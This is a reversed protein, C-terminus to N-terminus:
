RSNLRAVASSRVLLDNREQSVFGLSLAYDMDIGGIIGFYEEELRQYESSVAQLKSLNEKKAVIEGVMLNVFYGYFVAMILIGGLLAGFTKGRNTKGSKITM